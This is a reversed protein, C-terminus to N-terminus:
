RSDSVKLDFTGVEVAGAGLTARCKGNVFTANTVVDTNACKKIAEIIVPNPVNSARLYYVWTYNSGNTTPNGAERAINITTADSISSETINNAADTPQRELYPGSWSNTAAIGNFMNGAVADTRNWLVSLRNPVGGLDLVARNTTDAITKMDAFLKVAKSSDGSFLSAMLTALLALIAMIALAEIATFGKQLRILNQHILHKHISRTKM